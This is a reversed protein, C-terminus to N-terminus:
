PRLFVRCETGDVEVRDIIERIASQLEAFPFADWESILRERVDDLHRRREAESQQAAVRARAGHLEEELHHHEDVINAGLAKMREISIHGHAADAVVEELQRRNRRIRGEVRDAQGMIDLLYSDVNGARRVRTAPTSDEAILQRM